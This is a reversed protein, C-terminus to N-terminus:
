RERGWSNAACAANIVKICDQGQSCPLCEGCPTMDVEEVNQAKVPKHIIERPATKPVIPKMKKLRDEFDRVTTTANKDVVNVTSHVIEGEDDDDDDDHEIVVVWGTAERKPELAKYDPDGVFDVGDKFALALLPNVFTKTYFKRSM